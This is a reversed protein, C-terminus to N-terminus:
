TRGRRHWPGVLDACLTNFSSNVHSTHAQKTRQLVPLTKHLLTKHAVTAYRASAIMDHLNYCPLLASRKRLLATGHVADITASTTLTEQHKFAHQVAAVATPGIYYCAAVPAVISLTVTV